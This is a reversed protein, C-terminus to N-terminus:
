KKKGPDAYLLPRPFYGSQQILQLDSLNHLRCFEEAELINQFTLANYANSVWQAPGRFYRGSEQNRLVIKVRM